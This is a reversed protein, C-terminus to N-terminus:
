HHKGGFGNSPIHAHNHHHCTAYDCCQKCFSCTGRGLFTAADQKPNPFSYFCSYRGGIDRCVPPPMKFDIRRRQQGHMAARTLAPRLHNAVVM